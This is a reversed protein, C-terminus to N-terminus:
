QIAPYITKIHISKGELNNLYENLYLDNHEPYIPDPRREPPLSEVKDANRGRYLPDQWKEDPKYGRKIMEQM